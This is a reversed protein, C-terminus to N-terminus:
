ETSRAADDYLRRYDETMSLVKKVYNQTEAFPIDDIFEERDLDEIRRGAMWRAVRGDGANYAALALYPEGFKRMLDALYASGMALNTQATTLMSTRFGGLKLRRAYLRGTSPLLQMLGVANASSRITADFGSEQAILAALLYPSLSHRTAQARIDDWYDVPFIVKLVEESMLEGGSAMYQPYARKMAVIADLLDGQEKYIWGITAQLIATDGWTRQAYRLENMAEDYLGVALLSRIVQTTPPAASADTHVAGASIFELGPLAAAEGRRTLRNSSVRGYYTNLYDTTALRYRANATARDGMADYARGSWYLFAPRYDSRPFQRATMDFYTATDAYRGARYARWGIKWGARAAYRGAPFKAHLERLVADATADDGQRSYYTALDNLADEAWSSDPFRDLLESVTRLYDSTLKLRELTSAYFYLAEARRPGWRLVQAAPTGQRPGDDIFERLELRAQRYRRRFFDCEALRLAVLDRDDGVAHRRLAEFGSQADAYRRAAFLREARGLDLRYRASQPALPELADLRELQARADGALDSFPFEYYVRAYAQAARSRDGAASAARALQMWIEEPSSTKERSLTEYITLATDYESQAEAAEAEALPAAETLYGQLPKERLEKLRHEARDFNSLGMDARAAYYAVYADLPSVAQMSGDVLPTMLKLSEAARGDKLAQVAAKLTSFPKTTALRLDAATPALWLASADRSIPPHTTATLVPPDLPNGDSAAAKAARVDFTSLACM